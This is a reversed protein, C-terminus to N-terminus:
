DVKATPGINCLLQLFCTVKDIGPLKVRFHVFVIFVLVGSGIISLGYLFEIKPNSIFPTVLLFLGAIASLIPIFIHSRFKDDNVAENRNKYRLWLLSITALFNVLLYVFSLFNILVFVNGPVLLFLLGVVHVIFLSVVPVKTDINLHSMVEPYHGARAGSFMVRSAGFSNGNNAGYVSLLVSLTMLFAAPEIAKLAWDYGVASSSLMEQKSILTFFSVNTMVYLLTVSLISIFLARPINKKPDIIEDAIDGIRTYGHYAFFCSYLALSYPQVETASGEFINQFNEVDGRSLFIIGGIIVGTLAIVKAVTSIQQIYSGVRASYTNFIGLSLIVAAAILKTMIVPPKCSGFIWALLYDAFVTSLVAMSATNGFLPICWVAQFGLADGLGKRVYNFDGGSHPMMCGLEAYVLATLLNIGGCIAWIILSMGISGASKLAGTPSVFIGSGIMSGLGFTVAGFLGIHSMPRTVDVTVTGDDSAKKTM